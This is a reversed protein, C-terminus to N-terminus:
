ISTLINKRIQIKLIKLPYTSKIYLHTSNGEERQRQRQKQKERGEGGKKRGDRDEGKGERERVCMKLIVKKLMVLDFVFIDSTSCERYLRIKEGNQSPADHHLSIAHSM